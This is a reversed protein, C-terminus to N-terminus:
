HKLESSTGKPRELEDVSHLKRRRPLQKDEIKFGSTASESERMLIMAKLTADIAPVNLQILLERIERKSVGAKELQNVLEDVAQLYLMMNEINKKEHLQNISCINVLFSKAMQVIKQSPILGKIRHWIAIAPGQLRKEDKSNM